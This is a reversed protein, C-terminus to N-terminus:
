PKAINSQNGQEFFIQNIVVKYIGNVIYTGVILPINELFIIQEQIARSNKWIYGV